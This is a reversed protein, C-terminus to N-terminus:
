SQPSRFRTLFEAGARAVVPGDFDVTAVHGSNDLMLLQKEQSAVREFIERADAPNATKDHTGHAVLIPAALRELKAEVHVQLRILEHVAALPMIPYGPHRARAVPDRIDSGNKKKPGKWVHKLGPVLRRVAAGLRLPAGISVVADVLGEAALALSVLAGMSMGVAFVRDHRNRLVECNQRAADLWATHPTAVLDEVSTNHGPAAPGFARIRHEALQEGVPRVEYPTATLGHLCLAADRSDPALDFPDVDVKM